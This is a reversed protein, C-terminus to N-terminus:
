KYKQISKTLNIIMHTELIELYHQV